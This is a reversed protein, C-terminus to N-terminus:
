GLSHTATDEALKNWAAAMEELIQREKETGAAQALRLCEQAFRQYENPTEMSPM